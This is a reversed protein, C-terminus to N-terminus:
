READHRKFAERVKEHTAADAFAVYLGLMRRADFLEADLKDRQKVAALLGAFLPSPNSPEPPMALCREAVAVWDEGSQPKMEEWLALGDAIQQMTLDDADM